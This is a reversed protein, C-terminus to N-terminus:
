VRWRLVNKAWAYFLGILLVFVFISIEFFGLIGTHKIVLTWPIIFISEIDFLLFILGFLYFGADIKIWSPGITQEGCEYPLLKQRNTEKFGIIKSIYISLLVLVM